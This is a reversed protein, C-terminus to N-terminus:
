NRYSPDTRDLRRLLGAWALDGNFAPDHTRRSHFTEFTREMVAPPPATLETNCSMAMFQVQCARELRYLLSFADGVTRGGVLLGHNRLIMADFGGMDAALRAQEDVDDAVGEYDHYGLRLFPIASQAYPMLGCKMASVAMGALTHTHAVCALEPRSKQIAAHIVFGATNVGYGSGNLVTRGEVDIKVLSSADIEDYLMGFPNILFQDHTGPVRCSIHNAILDSMGFREVMRYCAALEVRAQWEEANVQDRIPRKDASDPAGKMGWSEPNKTM